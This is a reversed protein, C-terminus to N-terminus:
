PRDISLSPSTVYIRQDITDLITEALSGTQLMSEADDWSDAHRWIFQELREIRQQLAEIETM